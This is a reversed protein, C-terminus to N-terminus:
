SPPLYFSICLVIILKDNWLIKRWALQAVFPFECRTLCQSLLYINYRRWAGISWLFQSNCCFWKCCLLVFGCECPGSNKISNPVHIHLFYAWWITFSIFDLILEYRSWLNEDEVRWCIVRILRWVIVILFIFVVKKVSFLFISCFYFSGM